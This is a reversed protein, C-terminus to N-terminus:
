QGVEPSATFIGEQVKRIDGMDDLGVRLYTQTMAATEHGALRRTIEPSIKSNILLSVFFARHSHYSVARSRRTKEDIGIDALATYLARTLLSDSVPRDPRDGFFLFAENGKEHAYPNIRILELIDAMVRAPVVVFRIKGSKTTTNLRHLKNDWAQKIELYGEAAHIASLTLGQIESLRLGTSCSLANAVRARDDHWVADRFLRRVEDPRLIGKEKSPSAAKDIKPVYKIYGREEAAALIARLAILTKNIYSGARGENFLQNRFDKIRPATVDALKVGSFAPILLTEAIRDLERCWRENIRLGRSRKDTAWTGSWAFFDKAMYDFTVNERTVIQGQQLYDIAWREAAGKTHAGTSKATSWQGSSLRFRSYFVKGRKFVSFPKGSAM